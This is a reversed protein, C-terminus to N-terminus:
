NIPLQLVFYISHYYTEFANILGTFFPWSLATGGLFAVTVMAYEITSQGSEDGARRVWRLIRPIM